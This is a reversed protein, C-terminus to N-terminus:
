WGAVPPLPLVGGTSWGAVQLSDGTKADILPVRLTLVRAPDPRVLLAAAQNLQV